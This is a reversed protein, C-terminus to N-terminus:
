YITYKVCITLRALIIMKKGKGFHTNVIKAIKSM